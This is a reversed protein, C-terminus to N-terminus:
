HYHYHYVRGETNTCDATGAGSHEAQGVFWRDLKTTRLKNVNTKTNKMHFQDADSYTDWSGTIPNVHTVRYNQSSTFPNAQVTRV